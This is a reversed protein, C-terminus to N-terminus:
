DFAESELASWLDAWASPDQDRELMVCCIYNRERPALKHFEHLAQGLPIPDEMGALVLVIDLMMPSSLRCHFADAFFDNTTEYM